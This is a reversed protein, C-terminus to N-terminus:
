SRPPQWPPSIAHCAPATLAQGTGLVLGAAICLAVWVSLHREFASMPEANTDDTSHDTVRCDMSGISRRTRWRVSRQGVASAVVLYALTLVVTFALTWAWAEVTLAYAHGYHNSGLDM